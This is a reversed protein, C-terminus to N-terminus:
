IEKGTKKAVRVKKGDKVEYGVRTPKGNSDVLALKSVYIPAETEVIGGQPNQANPKTHKKIVNVGEVIAKAKEPYVKLVSGKTGKSSGSLVVVNDGKKIKLKAM